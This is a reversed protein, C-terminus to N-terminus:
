GDLLGPSAASLRAEAFIEDLSRSSIGSAEADDILKQLATTREKRDRDRQILDHVYDSPTAYDGAQIQTEIWDKMPDPLSLTMTAM